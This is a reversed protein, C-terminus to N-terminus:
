AGFGRLHKKNSGLDKIKSEFKGLGIIKRKGQKRVLASLSKIGERVIQSDSWGLQKQLADRLSDTDDDLRAHIVSSMVELDGLFPNYVINFNYCLRVPAALEPKFGLNRTM